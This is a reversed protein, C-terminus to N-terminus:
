IIRVQTMKLQKEKDLQLKETEQHLLHKETSIPCKAYQIKNLDETVTPRQCRLSSLSGM